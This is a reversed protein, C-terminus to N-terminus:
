KKKLEGRLLALGVFFSAAGIFLDGPLSSYFVLPMGLLLFVIGLFLKIRNVEVDSPMPSDMDGEFNEVAEKADDIRDEDIELILSGRYGCDECEYSPRNGLFRLWDGKERHIKKSACRPCIKIESAM